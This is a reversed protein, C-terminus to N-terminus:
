SMRARENMLGTDSNGIYLRHSNIIPHPYDFFRASQRSVITSRSILTGINDRARIKVSCESKGPLHCRAIERVLLAIRSLRYLPSWRLLFLSFFTSAFEIIRNYLSRLTLSWAHSHACYIFIRPLKFRLLSFLITENEDNKGFCGSKM